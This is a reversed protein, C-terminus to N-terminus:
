LTASYTIGQLVNHEKTYLATTIINPVNRWETYGDTIVVLRCKKGKQQSEIYDLGLTLNTGGRGSVKFPKHKSIESVNRYINQIKTDIVLLEITIDCSKVAKCVHGLCM